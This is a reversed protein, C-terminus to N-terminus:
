AGSTRKTVETAGGSGYSKIEAGKDPSGQEKELREVTESLADIKENLRAVQDKTALNMMSLAENVRQDVKEGVWKRFHDARGMMESRLRSGESESIEENKVLLGVLKDIEDEALTVAGQLMETSRKAYGAVTGTGKRLLGVLISSPVADGQRKKERALIQSVVSGTIEEGTENDEVVVEVGEKILESLQDLSIYRKRVTDYMKRNAYKKIRRPNETASTM